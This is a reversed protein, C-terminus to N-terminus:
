QVGDFHVRAGATVGHAAAWGANVELVYLSPKDIARSTDTLPEANAVVGAVRMDRGIFLMDLAIYTDRMWFSHVDEEGMLFLMGHDTPMHHRYKLGREIDPWARVVEVTVRIPEGATPHIVVAARTIRTGTSTVGGNAAGTPGATGAPRVLDVAPACAGVVAVLWVSIVPGRLLWRVGPWRRCYALSSM